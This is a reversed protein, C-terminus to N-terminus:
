FRLYVWVTLAIQLITFLPFLFKFSAHKTKHRFALMGLCGGLGGFLGAFLFLTKEPIRYAGKKAKSKDVGMLIFAILGMVVQLAILWLYAKM